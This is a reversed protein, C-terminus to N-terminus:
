VRERRYDLEKVSLKHICRTFEDTKGPTQPERHGRHERHNLPERGDSEKPAEWEM